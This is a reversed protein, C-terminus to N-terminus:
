LIYGKVGLDIAQNFADEEDYMTLFISRSRLGSERMERAVAFGNRKPMGIDLVVVDPNLSRLLDIAAEGDGAEGIVQIHRDSEIAQRLGQRFVPHDDAIVVSICSAEDKKMTAM